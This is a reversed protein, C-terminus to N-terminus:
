IFIKKVKEETLPKYFLFGQGLDCSYQKLIKLQNKTEVGEAIVKLNLDHAISLLNKIIIMNKECNPISNVFSRDIKIIDIPLEKLHSLSSYGTGFDDLAIKIGLRKLRNIREAAIDINYLFATETIEFIVKSFDVKYSLLLQEIENFYFDSELTKSSINISLEIHYFEEVEWQKKQQLAKSIIWKELIYIQKSEEAVPIFLTPSVIGKQPHIWRVLSEVGMIKNTRLNFIPQYFLTFNQEQIGKQLENVMRVKSVFENQLEEKFFLIDKDQRKAMLMAIETNQLLTIIDKGNDPYISIGMSFSIYFDYNYASWINCVKNKINTIQEFLLSIPQIDKFLIAFKDGVIHAAIYSDGIDAQLNYAIYQLLENGVKHSITHNIYRFNDIDFYAVAFRANELSREILKSMENIFMTMSPLGTLDDYLIGHELIIDM